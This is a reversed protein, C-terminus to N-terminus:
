HFSDDKKQRLANFLDIVNEDDLKPKRRKQKQVVATKEDYFFKSVQDYQAKFDERVPTTFLIDENNFTVEKLEIVSQPLFERMSLIQRGEDFLTDIDIVLPNEVTIHKEHFTVIGIIDEINEKFRVFIIEKQDAM